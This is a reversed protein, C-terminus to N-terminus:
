GESACGGPFPVATAAGICPVSTAASAKVIKDPFPSFFGTSGPRTIPFAHITQIDETSLFPFFFLGGNAAAFHITVPPWETRGPGGRLRLASRLGAGAAAARLSPRVFPARLCGYLPIAWVGGAGPPPRPRPAYAPPPLSFCSFGFCCLAQPIAAAAMPVHHPISNAGITPWAWQAFGLLVGGVADDWNV